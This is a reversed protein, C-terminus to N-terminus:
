QDQRRFYIPPYLDHKKGRKYLRAPRGASESLSLSKQPIIFGDIKEVKRRFNAPDLERQYFAEYVIRLEGITFEEECFNLAIATDELQRSALRRADGVINRHDFELVGPKRAKRYEIFQTSTADSGANPAPPNPTMALFAVSIARGYRTDRDPDGYAGIQLLNEPRFEMETEEYLERSAAEALTEGDEVLGGPLAFKGDPATKRKVVLVNLVGDILTFLVTDVYVYVNHQVTRTHKPM